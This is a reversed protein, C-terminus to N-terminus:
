FRTYITRKPKNVKQLEARWFKLDNYLVERKKKISKDGISYEIIESAPNDALATLINDIQTQIEEATM